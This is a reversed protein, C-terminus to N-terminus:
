EEGKDHPRLGVRPGIREGVLLSGGAMAVNFESGCGACKINVSLGGRPGEYFDGSGCDPCIGKALAARVPDTEAVDLTDYVGTRWCPETAGIYKLELSTAMEDGRKADDARICQLKFIVGNVHFSVIDVRGTATNFQRIAGMKQEADIKPDFPRIRPNSVMAQGSATQVAGLDRVRRQWIAHQRGIFLGAVFFAFYGIFLVQWSTHM